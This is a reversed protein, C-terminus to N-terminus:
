KEEKIVRLACVITGYLKLHLIMELFYGYLRNGCINFLMRRLLYFSVDEDEKPDYLTPVPLLLQPEFSHYELVDEVYEPETELRLM